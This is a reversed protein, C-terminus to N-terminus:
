PQVVNRSWQTPVSKKYGVRVTLIQREGADGRLDCDNIIAVTFRTVEMKVGVTERHPRGQNSAIASSVIIHHVKSVIQVAMKSTEIQRGRCVAREAFITVADERAFRDFNGAAECSYLRGDIKGPRADAKGRQVSRPVM